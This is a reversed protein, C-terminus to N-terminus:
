GVIRFAIPYSHSNSSNFHCACIFFIYKEFLIGGGGGVGCVDAYANDEVERLVLTMGELFFFRLHLLTKKQPPPPTPLCPTYSRRLVVPHPVRSAFAPSSPTHCEVRDKKIISLKSVRERLSM